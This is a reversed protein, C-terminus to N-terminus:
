VDAVEETCVKKGLGFVVRGIWLWGLELSLWVGFWAVVLGAACAALGGGIVVLMDSILRLTRLAALAMKVAYFAAGAGAAIFPIGLCILAVAVPLGIVVGGACWAATAGPKWRLHPGAPEEEPAPAPIEVAEVTLEAPAPANEDFDALTQELEAAPDPAPRAPPPSPVYDQALVFAVRTPTGLSEILADVDEAEDFRAAYRAMADQRDWSSMFGLLKELEALYKKRDM